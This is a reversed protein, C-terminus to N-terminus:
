LEVLEAELNDLEVLAITSRNTLWGGVEGPNLLAARGRLGSQSRHTHAVVILDAQEGLEETLDEERHSVLVKRGGIEFLRPSDELEALVKRLGAREGDNNGFVGLIPGDFEAWAKAAFPAIIDGAHILAGAGRERIVKVARDIMPLNDHSDAVVALLM